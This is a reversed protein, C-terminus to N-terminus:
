DECRECKAIGDNVELVKYGPYRQPIRNLYRCANRMIEQKNIAGEYVWAPLVVNSIVKKNLM